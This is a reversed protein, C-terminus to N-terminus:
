RQSAPRRTRSGFRRKSHLDGPEPNLVIEYWGQGAKRMSMSRDLDAGRVSSRGPRRASVAPISVPRRGFEALDAPLASAAAIEKIAYVVGIIAVLSQGASLIDIRGATPDKNGSGRHRWGYRERIGTAGIVQLALM